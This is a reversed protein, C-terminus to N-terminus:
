GLSHKYIGENGDGSDGRSWFGPKTVNSFWPVM